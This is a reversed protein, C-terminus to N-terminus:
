AKVTDSYGSSFHVPYIEYSSRIRFAYKKGSKLGVTVSRSSGDVKKLQKFSKGNNTSYYIEYTEAGKAKSWSLTYKTGSRKVSLSPKEPVIEFTKAVNGFYKGKGKILVAAQGVGKNGIYKVTYDKGNKLVKGNYRVTVKPKVPSGTYTVAEIASVDAKSIDLKAYEDTFPTGYVVTGNRYVYFAREDIKQGDSAPLPLIRTM